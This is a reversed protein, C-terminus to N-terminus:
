NNPETVDFSTASPSAALFKLMSRRLIWNSSGMLVSPSNLTGTLNYRSTIASTVTTTAFSSYHGLLRSGGPRPLGAASLGIPCLSVTSVTPLPGTWEPRAKQEPQPTGGPGVLEQACQLRRCGCGGDSRRKLVGKEKPEFGDSNQLQLSSGPMDSLVAFSPRPAELMPQHRPQGSRFVIAIQSRRLELLSCM